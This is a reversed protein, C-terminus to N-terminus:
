DNKQYIMVTWKKNLCVNARDGHFNDCRDYIAPVVLTGTKDIFGYKEGIRVVALGDSFALAGDFRPKIVEVGSENVYGYKGDLKVISMGQIFDWAMDYRPTVIIKGTTDVYGYKDNQSSYFPKLQAQAPSFSFLLAFLILIRM